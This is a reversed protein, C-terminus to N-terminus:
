LLIRMKERDSCFSYIMDNLEGTVVRHESIAIPFKNQRVQRADSIIGSKEAQRHIQTLKCCNYREANLLDHFINGSGIPPLQEDDGCIIFKTGKKLACLLSCFISSNVMSAEDLIIIDCSLRAHENRNFIDGNYELLRHITQAEHGTVEVIRQAAKASLACCEISKNQYINVLGRLITSKGTGAQGTIFSVNSECCMKIAEKQEDTYSFGQAKEAREIGGEVNIDNNLKASNLNDLLKVASMELDYFYKSGIKDERIILTGNSSKQAKIFDEYEDYCEPINEKAANNLKKKTVWTDGDNNATYNLFWHVFAEARYKSKKMDPNLKIVIEDAKKFGIGKAKTLIYPNELIKKKLLAPNEEFSLLKKITKITIGLPSLLALLDSIIYNSEIKKKIKQWTIDGIGKIEKTDINKGSIVDDIINPYASLINKAQRETVLTKLFSCQQEPTKPQVLTVAQPVYNYSGYKRNYEPKATTKYELGLTLRQTKGALIGINSDDCGLSTYPIDDKTDFVYVGWNSKENYYREKTPTINFEYTKM